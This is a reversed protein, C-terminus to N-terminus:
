EKIKVYTGPDPIIYIIPNEAKRQSIFDEIYNQLTEKTSGKPSIAKIRFTKWLEDEKMETILEISGEGLEKLIRLLDVPKQNGIKFTDIGCYNDLVFELADLLPKGEVSHMAEYYADNGAGDPCPALVLIKGKGDKRVANWGAHVGKGAQYLNIGLTGVGVIVLDGPKSVEVTRIKTIKPAASNHLGILDGANMYVIEDQFFIVDVGFIPVKKGVMEAIEKMETIVPNGQTNGLRCEPVFGLDRDFMKPHNHGVTERSAIGPVIEKVTGAVGAFYHLESDTLPILLCSNIAREDIKIPTGSPTTGVDINGTDCDHAFIHEKYQNYLDPTLIKNELEEVTPPRHTGSAVLIKIDNVYIGLKQLYKILKPLLIKTHKNPRTYDDIIITVSAGQSYVEELIIKLNKGGAPAESLVEEFKTQLDIFEKQPKEPELVIINNKWKEDIFASLLEDGYELILDTM